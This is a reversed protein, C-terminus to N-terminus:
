SITIKKIIIKILIMMMTKISLKDKYLLDKHAILKQLSLNLKIMMLIM